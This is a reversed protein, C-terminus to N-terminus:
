ASRQEVPLTARELVRQRAEGDHWVFMTRLAEFREAGWAWAARMRPVDLAEPLHVVLQEIEVGPASARLSHVLMAHQTPTLPFEVEPERMRLAASAADDLARADLSLPASM